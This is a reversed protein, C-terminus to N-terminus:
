FNRHRHVWNTIYAVIDQTSTGPPFLEGVGLKKLETMDESPIIGGGTVLVDDM